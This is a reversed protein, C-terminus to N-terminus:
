PALGTVPSLVALHRKGIQFREIRRYAEHAIAQSKDAAVGVVAGRALVPLLAGLMRQVPAAAASAEAGATRWSSLKGYPVDVIVIDVQRGALGRLLSARETADAHFVATEMPHLQSLQSLAASLRQASELAERHSPKGYAEVMRELESSRAALGEISLLRLNRTALALAEGDVDSGILAGIADWHLFALTCLHYAGGCCPDYVVAPGRRGSLDEWASRCRQFIESALRVPFAAHGPLSHFVKGAAYDAYDEHQTFRYPM